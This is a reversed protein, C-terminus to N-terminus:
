QKGGSAKLLEDIDAQSIRWISGAKGAKLKGSKLWNYITVRCVSLIQAAELPSYYVAANSLMAYLQRWNVKNLDPAPTLIDPTNTLLGSIWERLAEPSTQAKATKGVWANDQLQEFLTLTTQTANNM